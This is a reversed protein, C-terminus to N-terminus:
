RAAPLDPLPFEFAGRLASSPPRLPFRGWYGVPDIEFLLRRAGRPDRALLDAVLRDDDLPSGSPAAEVRPALGIPPLPMGLGEIDGTTELEAVLAEREKDRGEVSAVMRAFGTRRQGLQQAEAELATIEDGLRDAEALGRSAEGSAADLSRDLQLDYSARKESLDAQITDLREEILDVKGNYFDVAEREAERVRDGGLLLNMRMDHVQGRLAEANGATTAPEDPPSPGPADSGEQPLLPLAIFLIAPNM